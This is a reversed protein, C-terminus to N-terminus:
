VLAYLEKQMLIITNILIGREKERDPGEELTFLTTQLGLIKSLLDQKTDEKQKQLFTEDREMKEQEDKERKLIDIYENYSWLATEAVDTVDDDTSHLLSYVVDGSGAKTITKAVVYLERNTKIVVQSTKAFIPVVNFPNPIQSEDIGDYRDGQPGNLCYEYRLTKPCWTSEAIYFEKRQRFTVLTGVSIPPYPPQPPVIKDISATDEFTFGKRGHEESVNM